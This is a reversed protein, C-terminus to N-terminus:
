SYILVYDKKPPYFFLSYIQLVFIHKKVFSFILLYPFPTFYKSFSFMNKCLHFIISFPFSSWKCSAVGDPHDNALSWDIWIIMQLFGTSGSSWKCYALRDPHDNALPHDMWIIMQLFRTRGSSCICSAPRDSHDSQWQKDTTMTQWKDM